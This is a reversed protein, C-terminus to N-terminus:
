RGLMNSFHSLPVKYIIMGVDLNLTLDVTMNKMEADLKVEDEIASENIFVYEDIFYNGYRVNICM